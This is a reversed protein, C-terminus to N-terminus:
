VNLPVINGWVESRAEGQANKQKQKGLLATWGPRSSMINSLSNGLSVTFEHDEQILRRNPKEVCLCM